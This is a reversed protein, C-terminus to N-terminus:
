GERLDYSEIPATIDFDHMLTDQQNAAVRMAFSQGCHIARYRDGIDSRDPDIVGRLKGYDEAGLTPAAPGEFNERGLRFSARARPAVETELYQVYAGITQSAETQADALDGLM